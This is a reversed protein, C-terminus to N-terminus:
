REREREIRAESICCSQGSNCQPNWVELFNQCLGFKGEKDERRGTKSAEGIERVRKTKSAGCLVRQDIEGDHAGVLLEELRELGQAGVNARYTEGRRWM